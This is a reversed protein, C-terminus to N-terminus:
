ATANSARIAQAVARMLAVHVQGAWRRARSGRAAATAHGVRDAAEKDLAELLGIMGESFRGWTEVAVCTVTDSKYRNRKEREAAQNATGPTSGAKPLYRQAAPCRSSVDVQLAAPWKASWVVLDMRAEKVEMNPHWEEPRILKWPSKPGGPRGQLLAPAVVEARVEAGAQKAIKGVVNAVANRTRYKRRAPRAPSLTTVSSTM